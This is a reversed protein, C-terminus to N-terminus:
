ELLSCSPVGVAVALLRVTTDGPNLAEDVVALPTLRGSLAQGAAATASEEDLHHLDPM